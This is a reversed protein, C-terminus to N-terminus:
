AGPAGEEGESSEEVLVGPSNQRTTRESGSQSSIVIAAVMAVLLLTGAVEVSFWQETFLVAGLSSSQSQSPGPLAATESVTAGRGPTAQDGHSVLVGLVLTALLVFSFGVARVPQHAVRDHSASGSQQSLMIVFLFMVVIAGAYVIVTAAALFHANQLFFLGATGIVSCAFWLASSVPHRSIVTLVAGLVTQTAFLYFVADRWGLAHRLNQGWVTWLSATALVALGIGVSRGKANGRPLLLYLSVAGIGTAMLVLLQTFENM